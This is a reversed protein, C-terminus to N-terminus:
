QKSSFTTMEFSATISEISGGHLNYSELSQRVAPHTQMHVNSINIMLPLNALFSFFHALEHYGGSVALSYRNEIYFERVVDPLPNFRRTYIGSARAVRTIERILKPIEKKDPFISRLSDLERNSKRLSEELRALQQEIMRINNLENQKENLERELQGLQRQAPIVWYHYLAASAAIGALVIALATRTRTDRFNIKPLQINM